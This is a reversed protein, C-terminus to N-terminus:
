QGQSYEILRQSWSAASKHLIKFVFMFDAVGTIIFVAIISILSYQHIVYAQYIVWLTPIFVLVATVTGPFYRKFKIWQSIHLVQVSLISGVTFVFWVLYRQLVISLICIVMNMVIQVSVGFLVSITIDKKQDSDNIFQALGFPTKVPWTKIIEQQYRKFWPEIMLVEEFEHIVFFIFTLFVLFEMNIM